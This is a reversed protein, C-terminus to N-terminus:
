NFDLERQEDPNTKQSRKWFDLGRKNGSAFVLMYYNKVLKSDFYKLGIDSLKKQYVNFFHQFLKKDSITSGVIKQIAPNTFYDEVGLFDSYKKRCVFKPNIIAQRINRMLDTGYAFNMIFDVNHLKNKITQITQFPVSCDTPDIFVLNLNNNDFTELTATLSKIDTYDGVIVDANSINLKTIRSSLTEVTKPSIDIFVAKKIFSYSPHRLISLSTGDIEEGSNRLICRGPGSCIELYNLGSWKHKMGNAFIGFYKNLRFIKQYAWDGVCRVSLGDLESVVIKCSDNITKDKREDKRCNTKCRKNTVVRLDM